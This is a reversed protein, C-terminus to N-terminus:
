LLDPILYINEETVGKELLLEKDALYLSMFEDHTATRREAERYCELAKKIRNLVLHVHGANLWDSTRVEPTHLLKEYFRLADEYKGTMFYCWGIARRANDPTKNLYEVKFFYQLAKTYDHMMALCQGIQLQINLNDPQVTEIRRFYELATKYDYTKKYCQGLRKLTWIDDSKLIDAQRYASIADEYRKMKQYSFGLRQWIGAEGPKEKALGEYLEAAEQFYDRAFLHDAIDKSYKGKLLLPRLFPCKWFSLKDTFIDHQENRYMWLKFFRYLDHIYQRSTISEKTMNAGETLLKNMSEKTREGKEGIPTGLIEVQSKPLRNLTLCFSYKDSNCFFPSDLLFSVFSWEEIKKETLLSAIDPTHRDFPYFWHAAQRFFPYGKLQSFTSMYTDAGEMQLERLQQIDDSIKEMEKEWEPNQDEMDENIFADLGLTKLHPSRMMQPIIEERMKKDIKETERSFLFITQIANLQKATDPSDGLLALAATLEPYLALRNEQYYAAILIGVLARQTVVKETRQQYAQLLFQFKRADFLRLLSMTVASAMIALANAPIRSSGLLAAAENAEEETWQTSTWIKDFLEDNAKENQACLRKLESNKENEDANMQPVAEISEAVSELATRIEQFTHPPNKRFSRFKSPFYGESKQLSNLFNARDALEYGTRRLQFYMKGREPDNVGEGAYQLMYRYTTQLNETESELEWDKIESVLSSLQAFAEKLRRQDLFQIIDTYM